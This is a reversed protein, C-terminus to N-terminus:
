QGPEVVEEGGAPTLLDRLLDPSLGNSLFSVHADFFGFHAGGPVHDSSIKLGPGCGDGDPKATPQDIM